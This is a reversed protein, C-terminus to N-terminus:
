LRRRGRSPWGGQPRGLRPLASGAAPRRGTQRAVVVCSLPAVQGTLRGSSAGPLRVSPPAEHAAAAVEAAGSAPVLPDM